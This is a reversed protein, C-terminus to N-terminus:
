VLRLILFAVLVFWCFAFWSLFWLLGDRFEGNLHVVLCGLLWLCCVFRMWVLLLAIFLGCVCAGVYLLVILCVVVRTVCCCVFM